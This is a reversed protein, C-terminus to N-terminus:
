RRINLNKVEHESYFANLIIIDCMFIFKLYKQSFDKRIYISFECRNKPINACICNIIILVATIQLVIVNECVKDSHAIACLKVRSLTLM